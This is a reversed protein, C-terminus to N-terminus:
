FYLQGIARAERPVLGEDFINLKLFYVGFFSGKLRSQKLHFIGLYPCYFLEFVFQHEQTWEFGYRGLYLNPYGKHFHLASPAVSSTVVRAALPGCVGEVLADM